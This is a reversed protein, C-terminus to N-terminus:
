GTKKLLKKITTEELNHGAPVSIRSRAAPTFGFERAIALMKDLHRSALLAHPHIGMSGKETEWYDGGNEQLISYKQYLSFENCYSALLSLDTRALLGQRDLQDVQLRWESKGEDNLWEPAPPLEEIKDPKPQTKNVRSPRLTGKQVKM